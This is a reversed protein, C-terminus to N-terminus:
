PFRTELYKLMLYECIFPTLGSQLDAPEAPRGAEVEGKGLAHGQDPNFVREVHRNIARMGCAM